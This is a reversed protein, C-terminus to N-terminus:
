EYNKILNDIRADLNYIQGELNAREALETSNCLATNIEARSNILSNVLIEILNNKM